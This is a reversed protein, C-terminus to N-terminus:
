LGAKASKPRAATHHPSLLVVGDGRPLGTTSLGLRRKSGSRPSPRPRDRPPSLTADHFRSSRPTVTRPLLLLAGADWDGNGAIEVPLKLGTGTGKLPPPKPAVMSPTPGRTNGTSPRSLPPEEPPPESSASQLWQSVMGPWFPHERTVPTATQTTVMLRHRLEEKASRSSASSSPQLASDRARLRRLQLERGKVRELAKRSQTFNALIQSILM